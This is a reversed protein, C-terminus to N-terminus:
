VLVGDKKFWRNGKKWRCVTSYDVNYFKAVQVGSMESLKKLLDEKSPRKSAGAMKKGCNVSCCRRTNLQSKGYVSFSDGCVICKIVHEKLLRKRSPAGLRTLASSVTSGNLGMIECIEKVTKNSKFLQMLQEDDVKVKRKWFEYNDAKEKIRGMNHQLKDNDQHCLIHCNSCLVDCKEVEKIVEDIPRLVSSSRCVTGISFKKTAKDRHHFELSATNKGRYGCMFCKNGGIHELLSDKIKSRTNVRFCKEEQHCRRCLVICKEMEKRFAPSDISSNSKVLSRIKDRTHHFELFILNAEGCKSCKGGLWNVVVLKKSWFNIYENTVAQM